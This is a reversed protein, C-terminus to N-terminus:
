QNQHNEGWGMHKFGGNEILGGNEITWLPYHFFDSIM